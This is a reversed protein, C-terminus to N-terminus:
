RDRVSPGLKIRALGLYVKKLNRMRRHEGGYMGKMIEICGNDGIENGRLELSITQLAPVDIYLRSFVVCGPAGMRMQPPASSLSGFDLKLEDLTPVLTLESLTQSVISVIDDGQVDDERLTIHLTHIGGSRQTSGRFGCAARYLIHMYKRVALPFSDLTLYVDLWSLWVGPLVDARFVLEKIIRLISDQTVIYSGRESPVRYRALTRHLVVDRLRKNVM